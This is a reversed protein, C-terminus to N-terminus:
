KLVLLFFNGLLFCVILLNPERKYVEFIRKILIKSWGSGRFWGPSRNYLARHDIPNEPFLFM